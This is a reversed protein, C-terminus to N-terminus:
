SLSTRVYQPAGSTPAPLRASTVYTGRAATQTAAAAAPSNTSKMGSNTIAEQATPAADQQIQDATFGADLGDVKGLISMEFAHGDIGQQSYERLALKVVYGIITVNNFSMSLTEGSGEATAGAAIINYKKYFKIFPPEQGDKTATCAGSVHIGKIMFTGLRQSFANLFAGPGISYTLQFNPSVAGEISLLWLEEDAVGDIVLRAPKADAIAAVKTESFLTKFDNAM